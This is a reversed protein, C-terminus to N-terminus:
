KILIIKRTHEKRGVSIQMFYTGSALNNLDYNLLNIGRNFARGQESLVERGEIDFIKIDGRAYEDLNFYVKVASNTPNPFVEMEGFGAPIARLPHNEVALDNTSIWVVGIDSSAWVRDYERHYYLNSISGHDIDSHLFEVTRQDWTYGGDNSVYFSDTSTVPYVLFTDTETPVLEFDANFVFPLTSRNEWGAEESWIWCNVLHNHFNLAFMKDDIIEFGYYYDEMQQPFDMNVWTEGEDSTRYIGEAAKAYVTNRDQIINSCNFDLPWTEWSDGKDFSVMLTDYLNYCRSVLRCFEDEEFFSQDLRPIPSLTEGFEWSDGLDNSAAIGVVPLSYIYPLKWYITRLLNGQRWFPVAMQILTDEAVPFSLDIWEEQDYDFLFNRYMENGVIFSSEVANCRSYSTGVPPYNEIPVWTNGNDESTFVGWGDICVSLLGSYENQRLDHVMTMQEPMGNTMRTFTRGFDNSIYVGMKYNSACYVRGPVSQDELITGPSFRTPLGSGIREWTEGEDDSVLLPLPGWFDRNDFDDVTVILENNSMRSVDNVVFFDSVGFMEYFNILEQSSSFNSESRVLGGRSVEDNGYYSSTYYITYEYSPDVYIGTKSYLYPLQVETWTNGFDISYAYSEQSIYYWNSHNNRSYSIYDNYGSYEVDPLQWTQGGDFSYANEIGTGGFYSNIILTDLSENLSIIFEIGELDYDDFSNDMNLWDHFENDTKWLGSNMGLLANVGSSDALYSKPSGIGPQEFFWLANLESTFIFCLLLVLYAFSFRNKM